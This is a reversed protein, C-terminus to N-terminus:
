RWRKLTSFRWDAHEKWKPWTEKGLRRQLRTGAALLPCGSDFTEEDCENEGALCTARVEATGGRRRRRRRSQSRHAVQPWSKQNILHCLARQAAARSISLICLLFGAVRGLSSRPGARWYLSYGETDVGPSIPPFFFIRRTKIRQVTVHENKVRSSQLGALPFPIGTRARVCTRNFTASPFCRHFTHTYFNMKKKESQEAEPQHVTHVRQKNEILLGGGSVKEELGTEEPLDLSEYRKAGFHARTQRRAKTKVLSSHVASRGNGKARGTVM